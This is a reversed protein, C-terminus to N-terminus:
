RDASGTAAEPEEPAARARSSPEVRAMWGCPMRASCQGPRLECTRMARECTRHINAAQTQAAAAAERSSKACHVPPHTGSAGASLVARRLVTVGGRAAGDPRLKGAQAETTPAAYTSRTPRDAAVDADVEAEAQAAGLSCLVFSFATPAHRVFGALAHGACQV